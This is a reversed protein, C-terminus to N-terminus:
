SAVPNSECSQSAHKNHRIAVIIRLPRESFYFSLDLTRTLIWYRFSQHINRKFRGIM